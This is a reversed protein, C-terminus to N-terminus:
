EKQVSAHTDAVIPAVDKGSIRVAITDYYGIQAPVPPGRIGGLAECEAFTPPIEQRQEVMKSDRPGLGDAHAHASFSQKMDGGHLGISDYGHNEYTCRRIKRLREASRRRLEGSFGKLAQGIGVSNLAPGFAAEPFLAVIKKPKRAAKRAAPRAAKKKAAAKKSAIKRAM